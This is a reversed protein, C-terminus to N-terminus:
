FEITVVSSSPLRISTSCNRIDLITYQVEIFTNQPLNIPMQIIKTNKNREYPIQFNFSRVFRNWQVSEIENNNGFVINSANAARISLDLNCSGNNMPPNNFSYTFRIYFPPDFLYYDTLYRFLNGFFDSFFDEFSRFVNPNIRFTQRGLIQININDIVVEVRERPISVDYQSLNVNCDDSSFYVRLTDGPQHNLQGISVVQRSLNISIDNTSNTGRRTRLNYVLVNLRCNQNQAYAVFSINNQWYGISTPDIEIRGRSQQQNQNQQSDTSVLSGGTSLGTELAKVFSFALVAVIVGILGYYFRSHIENSKTPSTIYLIGAWILFIVGLFLALTYFFKLVYTLFWLVCQGLGEECSRISPLAGQQRSPGVYIKELVGNNISVNLVELNLVEDRPINLINALREREVADTQIVEDAARVLLIHWSGYNERVAENVSINSDNSVIRGNEVEFLGSTAYTRNLLEAAKERVKNRFENDVIERVEKVTKIGFRFPNFNIQAYSFDILVSLLSFYFIFILIRNFNIM